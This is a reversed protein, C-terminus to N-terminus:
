FGLCHWRRVKHALELPSYGWRDKMTINGGSSVLLRAQTCMFCCVLHCAKFATCKCQDFTRTVCHCLHSVRSAFAHLSLQHTSSMHAPLTLQLTNKGASLLSNHYMRCVLVVAPASSGPAYSYLECIYAICWGWADSVAPLNSDAAAVHLATQGDYDHADAACGARLLNSLRDLKGEYTAKCLLQAQLLVPSLSACFCLRVLNCITASTGPVGLDLKGEYTAKCLLQAQLV